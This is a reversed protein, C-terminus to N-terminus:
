NLELLGLERKTLKGSDRAQLFKYTLCGGQCQKNKKFLCNKCKPFLDIEWKLKEIIKKYYDSIEKSDKFTTLLPGEIALASCPLVTLSPTIVGGDKGSSCTGHLEAYKSLFKREKKSFICLPIPEYFSSKINNVLLDKVLQVIHRSFNKFENKKIYKNQDLVSPFVLAFNVYSINLRRCTNILYDYPTNLSTINFRFYVNKFNKKFTKLNFYLRKLELSSYESPPNLSVWFSSIASSKINFNELNTTGNTSIVVELGYKGALNLVSNIESFLTPEGGSLNLIKKIKQKSMWRLAKELNELSIEQPWKKLFGKAYCYSCARNCEYTLNIQM